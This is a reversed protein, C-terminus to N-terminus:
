RLKKKGFFQFIELKDQVFFCRMRKTLLSLRKATAIANHKVTRGCLWRFGIYEWQSKSTHKSCIIVIM